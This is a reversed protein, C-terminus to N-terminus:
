RKWKRSSKFKKHNNQLYTKQESCRTLELQVTKHKKRNYNYVILILFIFFVTISILGNSCTSTNKFLIYRDIIENKQYKTAYNNIFWLFAIVVFGPLGLTSLITALIQTAFGFIKELIERWKNIDEIRDSNM